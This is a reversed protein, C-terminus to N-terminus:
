LSCTRGVKRELLNMKNQLYTYFNSAESARRAAAADTAGQRKMYAVHFGSVQARLLSLFQDVNGAKLAAQGADTDMASELPVTIGYAGTNHGWNTLAGVLAEHQAPNLRIGNDRLGADLSPEVSRRVSKMHAVTYLMNEAPNGNQLSMRDCVHSINSVAPQLNM